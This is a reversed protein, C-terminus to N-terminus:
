HGREYQDTDYPNTGSIQRSMDDTKLEPMFNNSKYDYHTEGIVNVPNIPGIGIAFYAREDEIYPGMDLFYYKQAMM